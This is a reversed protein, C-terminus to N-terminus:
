NLLLLQKIILIFHNMQNLISQKKIISLLKKFTKRKINMIEKMKQKNQLM